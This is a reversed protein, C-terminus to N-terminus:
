PSIAMAALGHVNGTAKSGKHDSSTKGDGYRGYALDGQSEAFRQRGIPFAGAQDPCTGCARVIKPSAPLTITIKSIFNARDAPM